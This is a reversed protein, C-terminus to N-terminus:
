SDTTLPILSVWEWEPLFVWFLSSKIQIFLCTIHHLRGVTSLCYVLTLVTGDSGWYRRCLMFIDPTIRLGHFWYICSLTGDATASPCLPQIQGGKLSVAECNLCVDWSRWHESHVPIWYIVIYPWQTDMQWDTQRHSPHRYIPTPSVLARDGCGFLCCCM